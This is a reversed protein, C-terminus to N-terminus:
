CHFVFLHEPDLGHESSAFNAEVLACSVMPTKMPLSHFNRQIIDLARYVSYVDPLLQPEPVNEHTPSLRSKTVSSNPPM